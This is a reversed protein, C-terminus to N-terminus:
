KPLKGLIIDAIEAYSGGFHHGGQMKFASGGRGTLTSCASDGDDEGYICLYPSGSWAKLEPATPEGGEPNGLWHTVHFEFYASDSIGLLATLDVMARSAPPLRNVMFPLTDAGQSYGILLARTKGWARSYHRLVRDLDAAAGAPTRPSWFYKLSDWGVVPIGHQALEDSVGRDLGVWGGDGSLFVGLWPSNSGTAAPVETLPLDAVPAPLPAPRASQPPPATLRGYAALYQAMWNKEVSYGHGVKPLMVIEAGPVSAIFKQTLPAPCVQDIDGQLSIWKGPLKQVPLFNVGQYHGKADNRRTAEIGSGKCVTKKLDLDPCFGLSLAGKFLGDPSEALTAYVLTAGSSYGVLTPQLYQKIGLKAQLYHSLNEFDVDPSVCKGTSKELEALYHRIDIGAVVAGQDALRRAMSVVGLNWGGDGSVFLVVDRPAGIAPYLTVTGFRGFAFTQATAGAPQAAAAHTAKRAPAEPVGAAWGQNVSMATMALAAAAAMTLGAAGNM